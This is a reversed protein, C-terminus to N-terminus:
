LLVKEKAKSRTISAKEIVKVAYKKNNELSILEYCRAFGGQTLIFFYKELISAERTDELLSAKETKKRM